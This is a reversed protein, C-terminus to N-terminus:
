EFRSRVEEAVYDIDAQGHSIDWLYSRTVEEFDFDDLDGYEELHQQAEDAVEDAMDEMEQIAERVLEEWRDEGAERAKEEAMEYVDSLPDVHDDPFVYDAILSEDIFIDPFAGERHVVPNFSGEWELEAREIGLRAASEEELSTLGAPKIGEARAFEDIREQYEPKPDRNQKGQVQEFRSSGAKIEMTAHPDGQPDRLSYIVTDGAEVEACYGGVCHQMQEGEDELQLPTTLKQVTWGDPWEYVVDGQEVGRQLQFTELAALADYASTKTLDVRETEQWLALAPGKGSLDDLLKVYETAYGAKVSRKKARNLERAVWPWIPDSDMRRFMGDHGTEELHRLLGEMLERQSQEEFLRDLGRRALQERKSGWGTSGERVMTADDIPADPGISWLDYRRLLFLQMAGPDASMRNFAIRWWVAAQPGEMRPAEIGALDSLLFFTDMVVGPSREGYTKAVYKLRKIPSNPTLM